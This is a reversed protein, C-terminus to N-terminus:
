LEVTAQAWRSIFDQLYREFGLERYSQDAVIDRVIFGEAVREVHAVAVIVTGKYLLFHFHNEDKFIPADRECPGLQERRIRLYTEWEAEHFCFNVIYSDLVNKIFADKGMTYKPMLNGVKSAHDPDKVIEQKLAGYSDRVQPHTRLYDRFTLNLGIFGHGPEVVHLNVKSKETNKSFFYRLPINIEGKFVYGVEQLKLAAKLDDVILMIDLDEKATLGPVSTSGMHHIDIVDTGLTERILQAEIEVMEPWHPNYPHLIISKKM